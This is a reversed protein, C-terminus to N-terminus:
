FRNYNKERYKEDSIAHFNNITAQIYRQDALSRAKIILVLKSDEVGNPTIYYDVIEVIESTKFDVYLVRDGRNVELLCTDKYKKM